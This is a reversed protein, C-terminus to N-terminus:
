KDFDRRRRFEDVADFFKAASAVDFQNLAMKTQTHRLRGTQPGQCVPLDAGSKSYVLTATTDDPCSNICRM